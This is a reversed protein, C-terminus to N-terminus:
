KAYYKWTENIIVHILIENRKIALYANYTYPVNGKVMWRMTFLHTTEVKWSNHIISSCVNTYLNRNRQRSETTKLIYWSTSNSCVLLTINVMKLLWVPKWLLQVMECEWWCHVLTGIERCSHWCKSNETQKKMTKTKNKKNKM